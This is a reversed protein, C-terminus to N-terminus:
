AAINATQRCAILRPTEPQLALAAPAVKRAHEFSREGKEHRAREDEERERDGNPRGVESGLSVTLSPCRGCSCEAERELRPGRTVPDAQVSAPGRDQLPHVDLVSSYRHADAHPHLGDASALAALDDVVRVDLELKGAGEFEAEVERGNRPRRCEAFPTARTRCGLRRSRRRREPRCRFPRQRGTGCSLTESGEHSGLRWSAGGLVRSPRAITRVM